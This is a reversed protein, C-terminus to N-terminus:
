ATAKLAEAVLETGRTAVWREVSLARSVDTALADSTRRGDVFRGSSWVVIVAYHLAALAPLAALEIPDLPLRGLYSRLFPRWLQQGTSKTLVLALGAALEKARVDRGVYEFDLVGRVRSDRTLVNTFAFDGHILQAPLSAYMAAANEAAREVLARAPGGAIADLQGLDSIAPHVSRLDGDFTRRSLDARDITALAIDLEAFAVAARAVDQIDSDRVHDGPISRFLAAYRASEVELALTDGTTTAAPRPIAFPLEAGLLRRLIEHEFRIADLRADVYLRLVHEGAASSVFWTENSIGADARSLVRPRPLQWADLLEDYV